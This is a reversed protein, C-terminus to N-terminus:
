HQFSKKLMDMFEDCASKDESTVIVNTISPDFEVFTQVGELYTSIPKCNMEGAASGQITHITHGRCKDSRRLIVGITQDPDLDAPISKQLRKDIEERLWPRPNFYYAFLASQM